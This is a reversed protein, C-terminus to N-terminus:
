GHLLGHLIFLIKDARYPKMIFGDVSLDKLQQDRESEPLGSMAVIKCTAGSRRLERILAPGDMFPMSMDTIVVKIRDSHAAYLAAAKTGDEAELINYGHLELIAGLVKRIASEDDVVLVTEGRGNYIAPVNNTILESGGSEEAPFYVKFQSGKGVESYVNIFGGHGKVIAAVTSLGLGTGHEMDKTTFFPEFMHELVDPPIGTGTDAIKLIVYKGPKASIDKSIFDEYFIINETEIVLQGGEPMADRANVCLNLLVQHLQTMDGRIPWVGPLTDCVVTINKPFTSRVIKEVERIADILNIKKLEGEAGKTFMLLKKMLDAGRTVNNELMAIIRQLSEDTVKDRFIQVAMLIPTLINNLDHAIGGAMRGISEMRQTRLFQKELRRKETVDSNMFLFSKPQGETDRVLSIRNEVTITGGTKTAHSVEGKWSGEQLVTKYTDMWAIGRISFLDNIRRGAAEDRTWGYIAEAGKNWYIVQQDLDTMVIADRAADLILTQESILEKAQRQSTLDRAIVVLGLRDGKKDYLPIKTTEFYVPNTGPMSVTETGLTRGAQRWAVEDSAICGEFVTKLDPRISGLETDTKGYWEVSELGFLSLTTSNAILWRGRGDKFTISDPIGEILTEFEQLTEELKREAEKREKNNHSQIIALEVQKSVNELFQMEQETWRRPEKLENFALIYFGEDDFSFPYWLLSKIGMSDHFIKDSGEATITDARKDSYSQIWLKKHFMKEATRPFLDLSYADEDHTLDSSGAQAWKCICNMRRKRFDVEFIFSRDVHLAEGALAAMDTLLLNVKETGGIITGSIKNLAHSFELQQRMRAESKKKETIDRYNLVIAGVSPEQILNTVTSEIWRWTGNKHRFRYAVTPIRSPDELVTKLASLIIPLDEPHTEQDPELKMAEEATYGMVRTVSPSVYSIIGKHDEDMRLLVIGEMANEILARFRKESSELASEFKRKEQASTIRDIAVGIHSAMTVLYELEQPTPVRIGEDGFTGTGIAVLRGNLLYVPISVLTRNKTHLVIEKNTRPDTQADAIVVPGEARAVEELMRDGEVHVRDMKLHKNEGQFSFGEADKRDESFLYAWLTHYGFVQEIETLAASMIDDYNEARELKGSLNLLSKAHRERVRLAEETRKFETIDRATTILVDKGFYKGKNCIVEKPFSEGNSRLGWFEFTESVGTEFVRGIIRVVAAMDNKGPASLFDPTRGIFAERPYGYMKVAGENVDVFFGNEDQVYIAENVTNFLGSYSRESEKLADEAHRYETVDRNSGRSGLFKGATDFIPQCIHHIWHLDGKRDIIRFEMSDTHPTSHVSLIHTEFMERDEPIVISKLLGPDTRFEDASYGTIRECSPSTYVYQRDPTLWFEWDYTNDAVIRYKEESAQLERIMEFRESVDRIFATFYRAAGDVLRSLTIEAMFETGDKRLCPLPGRKPGKAGSREGTKFDDVHEQHKHAFRSPILKELPQGIIEDAKYGFLSEAGKNFVIVRQDEDISLIAEHSSNLIGEIRKNYIEIERNASALAHDMSRKETIDKWTALFHTVMGSADKIPTITHDVYILEGNKKRNIELDRFPKGETITKWMREYFAKDHFGSKLIRPTQGLAEERTYGTIKEFEANVYRIVGNIDTIVVSDNSQEMAEELLRLDFATSAGQTETETKRILHHDLVMRLERDSCPWILTDFSNLHKPFKPKSTKSAIWVAPVTFGAATMDLIRRSSSFEVFLIDGDSPRIRDAYHDETIFRCTIRLTKLKKEVAKALSATRFFGDAKIVKTDM